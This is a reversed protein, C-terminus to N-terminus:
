RLSDPGSRALLSLWARCMRSALAPNVTKLKTQASRKRLSINVAMLFCMASLRGCWGFGVGQLRGGGSRDAKPSNANEPSASDAIADAEISLMENRKTDNSAMITLHNLNVHFLVKESEAQGIIVDASRLLTAQLLNPTPM